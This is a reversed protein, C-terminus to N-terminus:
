PTNKLNIIKNITFESPDNGLSQVAEAWGQWLKESSNNLYYFPDPCTQKYFDISDSVLEFDTSYEFNNNDLIKFLTKSFTEPNNLLRYDLDVINNVTSIKNLAEIKFFDVSAKKDFDTKVLFNIYFNFVCSGGFSIYSEMPENIPLSHFTTINASQPEQHFNKIRSKNVSKKNELNYILNSLWKGGAGAPYQLYIKNM